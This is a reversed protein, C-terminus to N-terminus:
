PNHSVQRGYASSASLDLLTQFANEKRQAEAAAKKEERWIRYIHIGEALVARVLLLLLLLFSLHRPHRTHVLSQPCHSAGSVTTLFSEQLPVELRQCLAAAATPSALRECAVKFSYNSVFAQFHVRMMGFHEDIGKVSAPVTNILSGTERETERETKEGNWQRNNM